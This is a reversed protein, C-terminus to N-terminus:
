PNLFMQPSAAEEMIVMDMAMEMINTVRDTPVVAIGLEAVMTATRITPTPRMIPAAPRIRIALATGAQIAM